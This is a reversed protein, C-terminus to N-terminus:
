EGEIGNPGFVLCRDDRGKKEDDAEEEEEDEEPPPGLKRHLKGKGELKFYGAVLGLYVAGPQQRIELKEKRGPFLTRELPAGEAGPLVVQRDLLKNADTEVFADPTSLQFVRVYLTNPQGDFWNLRPSTKVCLRHVAPKPTEVKSRGCLCGPATASVLLGLAMALRRRWAAM